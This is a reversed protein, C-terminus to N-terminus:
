EAKDKDREHKDDEAQTVAGVGVLIFVWLAGGVMAGFAVRLILDAFQGFSREFTFTIAYGIGVLVALVKAITDANKKNAIGLKTLVITIAAAAAVVVVPFLGGSDYPDRM